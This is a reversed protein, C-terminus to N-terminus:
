FLLTPENVEIRTPVGGGHHTVAMEGRRLVHLFGRGPEAAFHTVGCLPGAHFLRTRMRFREFLASLRDIPEM